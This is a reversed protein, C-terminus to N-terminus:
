EQLGQMRVEILGNNASVSVGEPNCLRPLAVDAEFKLRVSRGEIRLSREHFDLRVQDAPVGPMEVIITLNDGEEFLDFHATRVISEAQRSSSTSTSSTSPAAKAKHPRVAPTNSSQKGDAGMQISFGYSGRIDKGNSSEFHGERRLTEGKDALESLKGLINAFGDIFSGGSLNSSPEESPRKSDNKKNSSM